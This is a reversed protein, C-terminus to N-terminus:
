IIKRLGQATTTGYGTLDLQPTTIALHFSKGFNKQSTVCAVQMTHYMLTKYNKFPFIKFKLKLTKITLKKALVFSGHSQIQSFKNGCTHLFVIKLYLMCYIKLLCPVAQKGKEVLVIDKLQGVRYSASNGAM